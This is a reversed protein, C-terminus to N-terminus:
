NKEIVIKSDRFYTKCIMEYIDNINERVQAKRIDEDSSLQVYEDAYLYYSDPYPKELNNGYGFLIRKDKVNGHIYFIKNHNIKYFKEITLRLSIKKLYRLYIM